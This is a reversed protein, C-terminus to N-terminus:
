PRRKNIKIIIISKVTQASNAIQAIILIVDQANKQQPAAQPTVDTPESTVAEPTTPAAPAEPAPQTAGAVAGAAAATAYPDYTEAAPQAAQNFMNNVAGTGAGGAAMNAVGLGIFGAPAGNANEAAKEMANAYAGVM